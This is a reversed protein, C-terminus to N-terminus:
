GGGRTFLMDVQRTWCDEEEEGVVVSEGVGVSKGMVFAAGRVRRM